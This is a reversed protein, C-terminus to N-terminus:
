GTVRAIFRDITEFVMESGPGRIVLHRDSPITSLVKDRSGLRKLLIKGAAPDVLPDHDSQLVLVPATVRSLNARCARAARKLERISLVYDVRYNIDPDESDENSVQFRRGSLGLYRMAEDFGAIPGVLPSRPDRLRLPANISFVGSIGERYRAALLLALSGGLSFGGVVVKSSHQRVLALGRGASELWDQWRVSALQEPATGHGPLRVAYVSCGRAHLHEALPRVQEPSALYGHCLMVGVTGRRGNLFYPEGLERAKSHTPDYADAYDREFVEVEREHLARSTRKRLQPGSLNVCRRLSEVAPRIPEVENAIVQIMKELRVRHFEHDRDLAARDIILTDGERRIVGERLGLKLAAEWEQSPGGAVLRAAGGRLAPHLRVDACRSLEDATLFLASRLEDVQIRDRQCARLGYCFLHDLNIELNAYISRMCADTLRRAQQRMFLDTRSEESFLGAVRRALAVMSNLYEAVEIPPGFHVVVETGTLLISGEVQLEEDIRPDLDHVVFKALRNVLNRSPRMPYFSLTVPVMVIGERNVQDPSTVGLTEQYYDIRRQDGAACADLYRRKSAEAKLALVAAGTHPPGHREPHTLRLRGRHVTKKNKILGGEPYIIWDQEGTMLERIITRNRRPHRTSMGGLAEFYRGFIGKFVLSTGLSGVQRRAHMFIVYPILFTEVRTFHNSVFLTPRAVLNETGSVRLKVGLMRRLATIAFGTVQYTKQGM